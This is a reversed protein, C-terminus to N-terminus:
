GRGERGRESRRRMTERGTERITRGHTSRCRRTSFTRRRTSRRGRGRMRRRGDWRRMRSRWCWRWVCRQGQARRARQMWEGKEEREVGEKGEGGKREEVGSLAALGGEAAAALAAARRKPNNLSNQSYTPRSLNSIHNNLRDGDGHDVVQAGSVPLLFAGAVVVHVDHNFAAGGITICVRFYGQLSIPYPGYRPCHLLLLRGGRDVAIRGHTCVYHVSDAFARWEEADRYPIWQGGEFYAPPCEGVPFVTPAAEAAYVFKFGDTSSITGKLMKCIGARLAHDRASPWKEGLVELMWKALMESMFTSQDRSLDDTVSGGIRSFLRDIPTLTLTTAPVFSGISAMLALLANQRLFTSKGTMNPGTLLWLRVSSTRLSCDNPTFDVYPTCSSYLTSFSPSLVDDDEVEEGGILRPHSAPLVAETAGPAAAQGEEMARQKRDKERERYLAHMRSEVVPHRGGVVEFVQAEDVGADVLTPRVDAMDM